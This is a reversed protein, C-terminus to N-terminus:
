RQRAAQRRPPVSADRYRDDRVAVRRDHKPVARLARFASAHSHPCLMQMQVQVSHVRALASPRITNYFLM